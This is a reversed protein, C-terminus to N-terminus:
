CPALPRALPPWSASVNAADHSEDEKALGGSPGHLPALSLMMLSLSQGAGDDEPHRLPCVFM